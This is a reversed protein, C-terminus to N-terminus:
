KVPQMSGCVVGRFFDALPLSGGHEGVGVECRFVSSYLPVNLFTLYFLNRSSPIERGPCPYSPSQPTSKPFCFVQLSVEPGPILNDSHFSNRM